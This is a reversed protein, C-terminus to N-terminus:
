HRQSYVNAKMRNVMAKSENVQKPELGTEGARSNSEIKSRGQTHETGIRSLQHQNQNM